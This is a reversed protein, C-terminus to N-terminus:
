CPWSPDKRAPRIKDPIRENCRRARSLLRSRKFRM